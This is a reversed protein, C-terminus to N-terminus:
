FWMVFFWVLLLRLMLWWVVSRLVYCVRRVWRFIVRVWRLCCFFFCLFMVLVLVGMIVLLCGFWVNCIVVLFWICIWRCVWIKWCWYVVLVLLGGFLLVCSIKWWGVFRLVIFWWFLMWNMLLISMVVLINLWGIVCWCGMRFLLGLWCWWVGFMLVWVFRCIFILWFLLKVWVCILWLLWVYLIRLWLMLCCVFVFLVMFNGFIRVLWFLWRVISLIVMCVLVLCRVRFGFSVLRKRFWFMLVISWGLFRWCVIVMFVVLIIVRCVVVMIFFVKVVMGVSLLLFNRWWRVFWWIGILLKMVVMLVGVCWCIWVILVMRIIIWVSCNRVFMVRCFLIIMMVVFRVLVVMRLRCKWGVILVVFFVFLRRGNCFCCLWLINRM